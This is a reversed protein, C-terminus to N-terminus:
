GKRGTHGMRPCRFTDGIRTTRVYAMTFGPERVPLPHPAPKVRRGSADPDRYVSGIFGGHLASRDDAFLCPDRRARSM